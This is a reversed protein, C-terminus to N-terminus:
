IREGRGNKVKWGRGALLAAILTLILAGTTPEPVNQAASEGAFMTPVSGAGSDFSGTPESLTVTGGNGITLASLRQNAHFNVIATGTIPSVSVSATGTGLATDLDSTGARALLSTYNQPGDFLIRGAGEKVLSGNSVAAHIELETGAVGDVVTITRTSGGLNLNGSIISPKTGASVATIEGSLVLKGVAGTTISGGFMSITGVNLTGSNVQASGSLALAGITETVGNGLSVSSGASVTVSSSNGIQEDFGIALTAAAAGSGVIIAGPIAVAGGTKALLIPGHITTGGTYTNSAGGTLVLSYSGTAVLGGSGTIAGGLTIFDTAASATLIRGNTNINGNIAMSGTSATSFTQSAALVIDNEVTQVSDDGNVIGGAGLTLVNGRVTFGLAGGAFALSRINWDLNANPSLGATGSLVIDATGDSPPAVDTLWNAAVTWDESYGAGGDWAFTAAHLAPSMLLLTAALFRPLTKM